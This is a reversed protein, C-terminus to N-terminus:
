TLWIPGSWSANKEAYRSSTSGRRRLAVATGRRTACLSARLGTVLARARAQAAMAGGGGRVRPVRDRGVTRPRCRPRVDGARLRPRALRIPGHRGGRHRAVDGAAAGVGPSRRRAWRGPRLAPWSSTSCRCSCWAWASGPSRWRRPRRGPPSGAASRGCCWTSSALGLAMVATGIHMTTRGLRTLLASSTISGGIAALPIVVTAVGRASRPSASGTQFMVNLALTMGGMAGIFGIVVALGAVYPRRRLISPEVLPARGHRVRRAQLLAFGRVAVGAGLLAFSWAPWGHERGQILPYVLAVGGVMALVVSPLDLGPRRRRRRRARCSAGGPPSRAGLRAPRQGPLDRAVRHRVPRPQGPRRRRAARRGRLGMVPGFIGFAQQQGDDGFLERILGFGQPVM